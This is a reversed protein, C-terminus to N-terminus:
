EKFGSLVNTFLFYDKFIILCFCVINEGKKEGCVWRGFLPSFPIFPVLPLITTLHSQESGGLGGLHAKVGSTLFNQEQLNKANRIFDKCKKHFSHM